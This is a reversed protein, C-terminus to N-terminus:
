RSSASSEGADRWLAAPWNLVVDIVTPMVLNKTRVMVFRDGSPSVDYDATEAGLGSTRFRGEFLVEPARPQLTTSSPSVEAVMLKNGERYFLERGDRSWLPEIGGRVSIQVVHASPDRFSTAYVEDRGSADSVYAVWRGDPSFVASTENASSQLFPVPESQGGDEVSLMWVDRQVAGREATYALWKGDPSWSSPFEWNGGGPSQILVEPTGAVSPMWALSPGENEPREAIESALALRKGDPSWVPGFDKVPIPPSALSHPGNSISSGSM